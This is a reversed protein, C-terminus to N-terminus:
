DPFIICTSKVVADKGKEIILKNRIMGTEMGDAAAMISRARQRMSEIGDLVEQKETAVYYGTSTGILNPIISETRLFNTMKGILVNDIKIGSDALKYSLSGIIQTAYKRNRNGFANNILYDYYHPIVEKEKDTLPQTFEEFNWIM